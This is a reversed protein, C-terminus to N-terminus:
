TEISIPSVLDDPDTMQLKRQRENRAAELDIPVDPAEKTAQKPKKLRKEPLIIHKAVAMRKVDAYFIGEFGEEIQEPAYHTYHISASSGISDM